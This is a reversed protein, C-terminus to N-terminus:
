TRVQGVIMCQAVYLAVHRRLPFNRMSKFSSRASGIRADTDVRHSCTLTVM